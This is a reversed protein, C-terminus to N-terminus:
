FTGRVSLSFIPGILRNRTEVFDIPSNNRRGTYVVRDWRSRANILNSASARVTLGLVDKNEVFVGVWVPGEFQRGVENLRFARTVHSYEGNVGYAWDSGPIDHRFDAVILRDTFSSLPRKEGTLPDRINSFQVLARLNVKAGKIGLPDLQFTSNWDIAYARAKDINGPSEGTLGIPIIDVYDEFLAAVLNLRTKGYRGLDKALELEFRWQQTPVLDPNGANQNDNDLFVRALFQGFDLQGVRRIIKFNANFTPTVQAAFNLSGKPRFFRREKGGPGEQVITSWEGGAVLQVSLAKSLPRGITVLGEYRDESVKGTGSPFFEEVYSGNANLSYLKSVLDLSNFAAEGSLQVDTKGWKWRYESRGILEKSRGDQVYRSGANPSLDTYTLLASQFFPEDSSRTLGIFKLRGGGLAFEYDAGAEYNKGKERQSLLREVDAGTARDRKSIEEFRYNFSRGLLNLNGVSSGPGDWKFQGSIQPQDFNGTWSDDRTEFLSGDARSIITPGGASSRSADNKLSLTYEIPGSTGSVSVDGRTYLPDAYHARFEPRYSFQGGIKKKAEYVVNAVQGTLGPVDVEAADVIEIRTVNGSPIAQLATVPDTSKGSIRKGNLLVNGSAQGLGRSSTDEGRISFGPVQNLMDLATRPAFRTFDAPTYVRKNGAPASVPAPADGTAPPSAEQALAPASLAMTSAYGLLMARRHFGRM